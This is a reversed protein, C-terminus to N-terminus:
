PVPRRFSPTQRLPVIGRRSTGDALAAAIIARQAFSKSCPMPLPEPQPCGNNGVAYKDVDAGYLAKMMEGMPWQGPAAAEEATLAAYTYQAGYKLCDLRSQKGAEGMCFAILGGDALAEVGNSADTKCWEYLSMVRDVDEQSHATTVLKVMDAGHYRCREVVSRLDEVSGTGEFDHYSRIFVTGSEHAANRVRKSMQKQAEIEVDVYRAGAEIARLLKKEAIQTAKIERSQETLAPDQLSPENKIVDAVRCTAVLPVDSSFVEDIEKMSLTCSDLRIEAMECQELAALVGQLDKNIITTCIM